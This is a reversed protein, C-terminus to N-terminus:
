HITSENIEEFKDSAPLIEIKDFSQSCDLCEWHHVTWHEFDMELGLDDEQFLNTGGCFPCMIPDMISGGIKMRIFMDQHRPMFMVEGGNTRMSVVMRRRAKLLGYILVNKGSL